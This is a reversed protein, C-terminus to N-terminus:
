RGVSVRKSRAAMRFRAAAMLARRTSSTAASMLASAPSHMFSASYSAPRTLSTNRNPALSTSLSSPWIKLQSRVCWPLFRRTKVCRAGSSPTIVAMVGKLWGALWTACLTTGLTAVLLRMTSLGESFTGKEAMRNASMRYSAPRGGSISLTTVPSGRSIASSSIVLGCTSRTVKVPPTAIPLYM